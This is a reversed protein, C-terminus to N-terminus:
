PNAQSELKDERKRKIQETLNNILKLVTKNM